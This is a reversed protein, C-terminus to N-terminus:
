DALTYIGREPNTAHGKRTLTTLNTAISGPTVEDGGDTNVAAVIDARSLPGNELARLIRAAITPKVTPPPATTPAAKPIRLGNTKQKKKRTTGREDVEGDDGDDGTDEGTLQAILHAPIEEEHRTTYAEGAAEWSTEELRRPEGPGYLELILPDLGDVPTLSGVRFHRMVATPRESNLLYATGATSTPATTDDDPDFRSRLRPPGTLKPIVALQAGAPLLGDSVLSAMMSSSWRLLTVEGEKLMARLTDSGGLEDVHGAQAAADEGVGVSRGTRGIEKFLFAALDRYPAGKELLRNAEDIHVVLLPDPDDIAFYSRGMAAYRRTREEIVAVAALLMLIAGEQSTTHWDVNDKAEPVSQGGKLDALWSVIGSRKEAALRLQLSRSKGAGTTGFMVSRQAGSGPEYLRIRAPRGDHHRGVTIYGRDDMVLDEGVAHPMDALPPNKYVTILARNLGDTEVALCAPDLVGLATCLRRLDYSIVGGAPVEVHVEVVDVDTDVGPIPTLTM